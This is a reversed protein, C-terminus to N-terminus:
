THKSGIIVGYTAALAKTMKLNKLSHATRVILKNSLSILLFNSPSLRESIQGFSM